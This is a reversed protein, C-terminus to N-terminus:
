VIFTHFILKLYTWFLDFSSKKVKQKIKTMNDRMTSTIKQM